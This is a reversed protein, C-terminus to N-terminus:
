RAARANFEDVGETVSARARRIQESCAPPVNPWKAEGAPSPMAWARGVSSGAGEIRCLSSFDHVGYEVHQGPRAPRAAGWPPLRLLQGLRTIRM